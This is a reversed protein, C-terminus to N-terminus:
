LSFLYIPRYLNRLILMPYLNLITLDYKLLLMHDNLKKIDILEDKM